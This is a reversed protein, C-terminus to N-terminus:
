LLPLIYKQMALSILISFIFAIAGWHGIGVEEYYEDLNDFIDFKYILYDFIYGIIYAIVIYKILENINKPMYYGLVSKSIPILVGLAAVITLGAYVGGQIISKNEFYVKLSSLFDVNKSLDNLIIDSIFGTIFNFLIFTEIKM